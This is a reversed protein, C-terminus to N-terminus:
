DWIWEIEKIDMERIETEGDVLLCLRGMATIGTLTGEVIGAQLRFYRKERYGFLHSLYESRISDFDGSRLRVYVRDLHRVLEGFEEKLSLQRDLCQGISTIRMDGFNRQNINVGIGIVSSVISNGQISNEILTGCVKKQGIYIDNPWKIKADLGRAKLYSSVGLAVAQSIVFQEAILVQEPTIILSFTLNEGPPSLWVSGRQGRGKTQEDTIVVTGESFMGGRVLEAAIDNTSHCSPLYIVKKGIIVTDQISNYM